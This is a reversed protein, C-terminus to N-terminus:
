MKVRKANYRFKDIFAKMHEMKLEKAENQKQQNLM